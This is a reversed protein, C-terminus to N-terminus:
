YFWSRFILLQLGTRGTKWSGLTGWEQDRAQVGGLLPQLDAAVATYRKIRASPSPLHRDKASWDKGQPEWNGQRQGCLVGEQREQRTRICSWSDLLGGQKSVSWTGAKGKWDTEGCRSDATTRLIRIPSVSPPKTVDCSLLLDGQQQRAPPLDLDKGHFSGSSIVNFLLLLLIM